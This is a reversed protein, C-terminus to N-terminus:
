SRLIRDCLRRALDDARSPVRGPLHRRVVAIPLDFLAFAVEDERCGSRAALRSVIRALREDRQREEARVRAFAEPPWTDPSFAHQGAHLVAVAEPHARCWGVFGATAEAVDEASPDDGLLGLYAEECRRATVRWVECLLTARDRYRHYVSGSPAGAEKAVASMTVARAGGRLFLALAAAVFVEPSHTVPRGM